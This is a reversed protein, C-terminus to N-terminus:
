YRTTASCLSCKWKGGSLGSLGALSRFWPTDNGAARRHTILPWSSMQGLRHVVWRSPRGNAKRHLYKACVPWFVVRTKNKNKGQVETCMTRCGCLVRVSQKTETPCPNALNGTVAGHPLKFCM